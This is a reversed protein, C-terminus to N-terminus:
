VYNLNSSVNVETLEVKTKILDLDSGDPGKFQPDLLINTISRALMLPAGEVLLPSILKHLLRSVKDKISKIYDEFGEEAKILRRPKNLIINVILNILYPTKMNEILLRESSFARVSYLSRLIDEYYIKGNQAFITLLSFLPLNKNRM